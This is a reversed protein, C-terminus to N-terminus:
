KKELLETIQVSIEMNKKVFAFAVGFALAFVYAALYAMGGFVLTMRGSEALINVKELPLLVLLDVMVILSAYAIIECIGEFCNKSARKSLLCSLFYCVVGPGIVCLFEFM